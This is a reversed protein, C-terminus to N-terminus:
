PAAVFELLAAGDWCVFIWTTVVVWWKDDLWNWGDDVM